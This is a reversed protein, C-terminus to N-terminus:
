LFVIPMQNSESTAFSVDDGGVYDHDWVKLELVNAGMVLSAARVSICFVEEKWQPDLTKPIFKTKGLSIQGYHVVVYPDSTTPRGLMDFDKPILNRGELVKVVIQLPVEAEKQREQQVISEKHAAMTKYLIVCILAGWFRGLFHGLLRDFFSEQKVLLPCGFGAIISFACIMAYIPDTNTPAFKTCVVLVVLSFCGATRYSGYFFFMATVMLMGQTVRIIPSIQNSLAELEKKSPKKKKGGRRTSRDFIRDGRSSSSSVDRNDRKSDDSMLSKNSGSRSGASKRGAAPTWLSNQMSDDSMPKGEPIDNGISTNSTSRRPISFRSSKSMSEDSMPKKRLLSFRSSKTMGDLDNSKTRRLSPFRSKSEDSMGKGRRSFMSRSDDSMPTTGGRRTSMSMRVDIDNSKTRRPLSFRSKSEDSMPKKRSLISFRSKSEDSMPKDSGGAARRRAPRKPASDKGDEDDGRIRTQVQTEVDSGM